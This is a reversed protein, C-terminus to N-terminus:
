FSTVPLPDDNVEKGRRRGIREVIASESEVYLSSYVGDQISFAAAASGQRQM